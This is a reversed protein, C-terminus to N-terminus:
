GWRLFAIWLPLTLCSLMTSQAILTAPLKRDAGFSAALVHAASATPLAAFMVLIAASPADLGTAKGYGLAILPLMLLKIANMSTQFANMRFVSRWNLTAGISLLALPVAADALRNITQMPFQPPTWGSLGVLVGAVSALLFPNLAIIYLTRKMGVGAGHSLAGVALLNAVPVALGIAVSMLAATSAPLAQVAVFAIATNFRWATQWAGSFDLFGSPGRLRLPWALALGGLMVVWVGVGISLIQSPIIPRSCAATFLLAPFLIKFNLRDFGEWIEQRLSKAILGGLAILAIDPFIATIIPFLDTM